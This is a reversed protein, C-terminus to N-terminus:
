RKAHRRYCCLVACLLVLFGWCMVFVETRTFGDDYYIVGLGIEHELDNSVLLRKCM